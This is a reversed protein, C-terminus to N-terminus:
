GLQNEMEFYIMSTEKETTQMIKKKKPPTKKKIYCVQSVLKYLFISHM